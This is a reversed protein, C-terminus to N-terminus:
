PRACVADDSLAAIIEGAAKNTGCAYDMETTANSALVWGDHFHIAAAFPFMRNVMLYVRADISPKTDASKSSYGLEADQNPRLRVWCMDNSNSNITTKDIGRPTVWAQDREKMITVNGARGHLLNSRQAFQLYCDCREYYNLSELQYVASGSYVSHGWTVDAQELIYDVLTSAVQRDTGFLEISGGDPRRLWLRKKGRETDANGKWPAFNACCLNLHCEKLQKDAAAILTDVSRKWQLKTPERRAGTENQFAPYAHLKFGAIYCAKGFMERWTALVKPLAILKPAAPEKSDIKGQAEEFGFDSVAAASIAYKVNYKMAIEALRAVYTKYTDYIIVIVRPDIWYKLTAIETCLLIVPVEREAAANAINVGTGGKSSNGLNRVDDWEVITGGATILMFGHIQAKLGLDLKFM